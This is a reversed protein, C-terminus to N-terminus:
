LLITRTSPPSKTQHLLRELVPLEARLHKALKELLRDSRQEFARHLRVELRADTLRVSEFVIGIRSQRPAGILMQAGCEDCLRRVYAGEVFDNLVRTLTEGNLGHKPKHASPSAVASSSQVLQRVKAAFDDVVRTVSASTVVGDGCLLVEAAAAAAANAARDVTAQEVDLSPQRRITPRGAVCPRGLPPAQQSFRESSSQGTGVAAKAARVARAARRTEASNLSSHEFGGVQLTVLARALPATGGRARATLTLAAASAMCLVM